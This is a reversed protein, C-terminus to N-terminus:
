AGDAPDRVLRLLQPQGGGPHEDRDHRRGPRGRVHEDGGMRPLLGGRRGVRAEVDHRRVVALRGSGAGRVAVDPGRHRRASGEAGRQVEPRPDQLLPQLQRGPRRRDGGQRLPQSRPPRVLLEDRRGRGLQLDTRDIGVDVARRHARRGSQDLLERRRIGLVPLARLPQPAQERRAPHPHRARHLAAHVGPLLHHHRLRSRRRRGQDQGPDRRPERHLDSQGHHGPGQALSGDLGGPHRLGGLLPLEHRGNRRAGRPVRWWGDGVALCRHRRRRRVRGPDLAHGRDHDGRRGDEALLGATRRRPTGASRAM